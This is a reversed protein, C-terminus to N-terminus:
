TKIGVSLRASLGVEHKTDFIKDVFKFGYKLEEFGNVRFGDSSSDVTARMDSM